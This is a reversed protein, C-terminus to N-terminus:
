LTKRVCIRGVFRSPTATLAITGSPRYGFIGQLTLPEDASSRGKGLKIRIDSEYGITAFNGTEFDDFNRMSIGISLNKAPWCRGGIAFTFQREARTFYPNFPADGDMAFTRFNFGADLFFHRMDIEFLPLVSYLWTDSRSFREGQLRLKFTFPKPMVTGTGAELYGSRFDLWREKGLQNSLVDIAIASAFAVTKARISANAYWCAATGAVGRREFGIGTAIEQATKKGPPDIRATEETFVPVM